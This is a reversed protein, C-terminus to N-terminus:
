FTDVKAPRPTHCSTVVMQPLQHMNVKESPWTVVWINDPKGITHLSNSKSRSIGGCSTNVPSISELSSISTNGNAAIGSQYPLIINRSHKM